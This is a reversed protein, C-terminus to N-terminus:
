SRINPSGLPLVGEEPYEDFYAIHKHPPVQCKQEDDWVGKEPWAAIKIETEREDAKESATPEQVVLGCIQALDRIEEITLTLHPEGLLGLPACDPKAEATESAATQGQMKRLLASNKRAGERIYEDM